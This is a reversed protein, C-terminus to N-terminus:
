RKDKKYFDINGDFWKCFICRLNLAQEGEIFFQEVYYKCKSGKDCNVKEKPTQKM